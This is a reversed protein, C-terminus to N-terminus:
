ENAASRALQGPVTRDRAERAFSVEREDLMSRAAFALAKAVPGAKSKSTTIARAYFLCAVDRELQSLSTETREALEAISASRCSLEKLIELHADRLWSLPVRPAHRYYITRNRYRPPLLHRDSRHAYNWALQAPTSRVFGSPLAWAARPRKVWQAHNLQAADMQKALAAEGNWFDLIALLEDRYRVHFIGHRLAAGREVVKAGLAFQSQAFQLSSDFEALISQVSAVSSVDFTLHPELSADAIPEAFAVPRDTAGIDLNLSAECSSGSSVRLNGNRLLECREGNVLWTDAHGFTCMRWTAPGASRRLCADIFARQEPSFGAAGVWFVPTECAGLDSDTDPGSM